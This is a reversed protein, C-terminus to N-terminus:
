PSRTGRWRPKGARFAELGHGNRQARHRRYVEHEDRVVVVVVEVVRGDALEGLAVHREHGREADARVEFCPAHLGLAYYFEVPPLRMLERVGLERHGGRRRLVERPAAQVVAIRGQPGREDDTRWAVGYKEAAIRAEGRFILRDALPETGEIEDHQLHAPAM